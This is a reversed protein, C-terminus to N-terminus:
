DITEQADKEHDQQTFEEPLSELFDAAREAQPTGPYLVVLDRASEVAEAPEGAFYYLETAAWLGRAAPGTESGFFLYPHLYLDLAENFLREREPRVFPDEMWRPNEEELERLEQDAATALIFKAEILVAPDESEEALETAEEVAERANGMAIMAQLRGRRAGARDEPSWAEREIRSFLDYARQMFVPSGSSLLLEAYRIGVRAAASRPQSLFREGAGWFRAAEMLDAGTAQAFFEEMEPDEAFEIRVVEERPISITAPPQGEVIQVQIRFYQDDFDVLKGVRRMENRLILVDAAVPEESDAWAVPLLLVAALLFCISNKM